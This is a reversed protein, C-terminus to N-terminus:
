CKFVNIRIGKHKRFSKLAKIALKLKGSTRELTWWVVEESLGFRGAKRTVWEDIPEHKPLAPPKEQPRVPSSAFDLDPIQFEDDGPDGFLAQTEPGFAGVGLDNLQEEAEDHPERLDIDEEVIIEEDEVEPGTGEEMEAMEEMQEMQEDDRQSETRSEAKFQTPSGGPTSPIEGMGHRRRGSAGDGRVLNEPPSSMGQRTRRAPVQTIIRPSSASEIEINIDGLSVRIRNTRGGSEQVMQDQLIDDDPDMGPHPTRPARWITTGRRPNEYIIDEQPIVQPSSSQRFSSTAARLSRVPATVRRSSTPLSTSRPTTAPLSLRPPPEAPTTMDSPHHLAQAPTTSFRPIPTPKTPATPPIPAPIPAQSQTTRPKKLPQTQTTAPPATRKPLYSPPDLSPELGSPEPEQEAPEFTSKHRPAETEHHNSGGARAPKLRAFWRQKWQEAPIDM